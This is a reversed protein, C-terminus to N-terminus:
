KLYMFYINYDNQVNVNIIMIGTVEVSIGAM